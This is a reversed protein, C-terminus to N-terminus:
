AGTIGFIFEWIIWPIFLLGPGLIPLIDLIGTIIGLTFAYNFGFIMLGLMTSLATIAVLISYAKAFGTLANILEGFIDQATNKLDESPILRWFFGQILARDKIIFFTAVTAIIIMIIANPLGTIILLLFNFAADAMSQLSVLAKSLYNQITQQVQVDLDIYFLRANLMGKTVYEIIQSSYGALHPYFKALESVLKSVILILLAVFGGVTLLLSVAVALARPMRLRREFLLVIPEIVLAIILAIIFPLLLKPLIVLFSILFPMLYKLLLLLSAFVLVAIAWKVLRKLSKQLDPDM